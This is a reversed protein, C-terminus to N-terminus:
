LLHGAGHFLFLAFLVMCMKVIVVVVVVVVRSHVISKVLNLAM